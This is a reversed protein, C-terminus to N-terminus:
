ILDEDELDNNLFPNDKSTIPNKIKFGKEKMLLIADETQECNKM